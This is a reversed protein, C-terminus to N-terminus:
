NLTVVEGDSRNGLRHHVQPDMFFSLGHVSGDCFVAQWTGPHASGFNQWHYGLSGGSDHDAIPPYTSTAMRVVDKDHGTYMSGNDAWPTGATYLDANLFKEGVLYTNSTGDRISGFQIESRQYIVGSMNECGGVWSDDVVSGPGPTDCSGTGNNVGGANAAYDTKAVNQNASNWNANHPTESGPKHFLYAQVNRRSPCLFGAIPARLVEGAADKNATTPNDTNGEAMQHLADQELFPLLQYIWGGPQRRGAGRAADGTWM